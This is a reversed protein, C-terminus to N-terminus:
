TYSEMYVFYEPYAFGNFVSLLNTTAWPQPLYPILSQTTIASSHLVERQPLSFTRFNITTISACNELYVLLWQSM